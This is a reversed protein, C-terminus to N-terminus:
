YKVVINKSDQTVLANGNAATLTYTVRVPPAPRKKPALTTQSIM